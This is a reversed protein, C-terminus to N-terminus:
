KGRHGYMHRLFNAEGRAFIGLFAKRSINGLEFRKVCSSYRKRIECLVMKSRLMAEVVEPSLDCFSALNERVADTFEELTPLKGSPLPVAGHNDYVGELFKAAAEACEGIFQTRTLNGVEFVGSHIRYRAEIVSQAAAGYIFRRADERSIDSRAATFKECVADIFEELPPIGASPNGDLGYIRIIRRAADAVRDGYTFTPLSTLGNDFDDKFIGYRRNIYRLSRESWVYDAADEPDMEPMLEALHGEVAYVFDVLSPIKDM